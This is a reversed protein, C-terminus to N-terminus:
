TRRKNKTKKRPPNGQNNQPLLKFTQPLLVVVSRNNPHLYRNAVRQVDAATVKFYKAVDQSFKSADGLLLQVTGILQGMGHPSRVSDILDMTLQRVARDVEERTVGKEQIEVIVRDLEAEALDAKLDGKMQADVILLGPFAPTYSSGSIGAVWQKEEVLRQHARSGMGEFLINSLVDVAHTDQDSASTIKYGRQFRQSAVHDYLTLRREEHQEPERAVVRRVSRTGEAFRQIGGYASRIWAFTEDQNFDGVVVLTLKEPHYYQKFYAQVEPLQIESIDEPYGIVPWRYPHVEFALDWLAEDMKGEPSNDTRLRREELVVQRETELLEPTLKLNGLRDAEMEIVKPLLDPTFTEHYVTYDRTTFANVEAGKAELQQFFQTPGYKETGKFMLHEFLHSVGTLGPREDVSGVKFWSQFSIVPVTHDEVMIITVGNSLIRRDLKLRIGFSDGLSFDSDRCSSGTFAVALAFASLFLLRM